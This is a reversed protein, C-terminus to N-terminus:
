RSAFKLAKDTSVFRNRYNAAYEKRYVRMCFAMAKTRADKEDKAEENALLDQAKEEVLTEFERLEGDKGNAHKKGDAPAPSPLNHMGLKSAFGKFKTSFVKEIAAELDKGDTGDKVDEKAPGDAPPTKPQDKPDKAPVGEYADMRKHLMSLAAANDDMKQCLAGVWAPPQQDDAGSVKTEPSVNPDTADTSLNKKKPDMDNTGKNPTDMCYDGHSALKKKEFLSKTAAPDSVLAGTFLTECRAFAKNALEEDEGEFELSIGLHTPNKKAIELIKKRQEPDMSEYFNLDARVKDSSLTFNSFWGETAMVGSGHDLKFKMTGMQKACEFVQRLTTTDVFCDHGKAEGLEILTVQPIIHGNEDFTTSTQFQGDFQFHYKAM